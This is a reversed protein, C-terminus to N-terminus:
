DYVQKFLFTKLCKKFVPQSMPARLEPPLSNWQKAGLVQVSRDGYKNHSRAVELKWPDMSSRLARRPQYPAFLEKLYDPATTAHFAKHITVMVKFSIRQRVPLWHLHYLVPKIHERHPTGTLLRAANNQAVQLKHLHSDPLGLLLGNHYDLHSTVTANIVKVTTDYTLHRKIMAIRRINYYMRSTVSNVQQRMSMTQDLKAGLNGAVPSPAIKEEGIQVRIQKTLPLQAKKTVILVETKADNLKLQNARMWERVQALCNEMVQVQRDCLMPRTLTVRNYLQTDDAFGHRKIRHQAIVRRLPLLYVLFLLPGLVSGQPVGVSLCVQDSKCSNIHVAQTRDALYSQIWRLAPGQLGVEKELRAMLIGHDITDFAASLDLLVLLVSDGDNLIADVDAKIRLLATETSTGRRYASQLDDHLGNSSLIANLQQAVVKEMVKGLFPINSVPRYNSLVNVDLGTKKLLPAV